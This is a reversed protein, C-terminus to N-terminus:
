MIKKRMLDRIDKISDEFSFIETGILALGFMDSKQDYIGTRIEPAMYYLTGRNRTFEIQQNETTDQDKEIVDQIGLTKAINFDCLKLFVGNRGEITLVNEPKLDRHIINISHLYKVCKTLERFLECSIFYHYNKHLNKLNKMSKIVQRLSGSCLEMKIYLIKLIQPLGESNFGVEDEVWSDFYQVVYDSELQSM